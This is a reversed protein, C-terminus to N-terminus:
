SGEEIEDYDLGAPVILHIDDENDRGFSKGNDDKRNRGVAYLLYGQKTRRYRIPKNNKSYFDKPISPLHLPVLEELSKPYRGHRLRHHELAFTVGVMTHLMESRFWVGQGTWPGRVMVQEIFNGFATTMHTSIQEDTADEPLAFWYFMEKSLKYENTPNDWPQGDDWTKVANLWVEYDRFNCQDMMRDYHGNLRQLVQNMDVYKFVAARFLAMGNPRLVDDRLLFITSLCAIREGRNHVERATPIAPLSRFQRQYNWLDQQVHNGHSLFALVAHDAIARMSVADLLAFVYPQQARLASLKYVAMLDDWGEAARNTALRHMARACFSRALERWNIETGSRAETIADWQSQGSLRVLPLYFRSRDAAQKILTLAPANRELFNALRPYDKATWPKTTAEVLEDEFEGYGPHYKRRVVPNDDSIIIAGGKEIVNTEIVEVKDPETEILFAHTDAFYVGDAPLSKMGLRDMVIARARASIVEPGVAKLILNFANNQPTVGRRMDADFAAVFDFRHRNLVPGEFFTTSRSVRLPIASEWAEAITIVRKGTPQTANPTNEGLQQNAPLDTKASSDDDSGSCGFLLIGVILLVACLARIIRDPGTM